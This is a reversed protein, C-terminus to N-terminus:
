LALGLSAFARVPRGPHDAHYVTRCPENVVILFDTPPPVNKWLNRMVETNEWYCERSLVPGVAPSLTGVVFRGPEGLGRRTRGPLM